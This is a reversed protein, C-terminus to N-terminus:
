GHCSFIYSRRVWGGVKSAKDVMVIEIQDRGTAKGSAILKSKLAHTFSLGSIGTGVVLVRVTPAPLMGAFRM